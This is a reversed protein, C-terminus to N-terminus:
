GAIRRQIEQIARQSEAQRRKYREANEPTQARHFAENSVEGLYHHTDAIARMVNRERVPATSEDWDPLLGHIVVLGLELHLDGLEEAWAPEIPLGMKEHETIRAHWRASIQRMFQEWPQLWQLRREEELVNEFSPELPPAEVKLTESEGILDAVRVNLAAAIKRATVPRIGEEHEARLVSNKSVGAEEAVTEIAYGLMERARILKDRDLKM